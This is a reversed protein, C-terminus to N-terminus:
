KLPAEKDLAINVELVNVGPEGLVGLSRSDTNASILEEVKSLPLHRVAAIRHAQIQANAESIDPDVGSASQTVADVPVQERTLSKDYPKNLEVYAKLEERIEERTEISNPGENGFFTVNGSYGTASPRPQFYNPNPQTEVEGEENKVPKGNKGIVPETFEQGILHSGVVKGNLSVKSGNAPGSFFVQSIGTIALPYLLGLVITMAVIAIVGTTLDKRLGHTM